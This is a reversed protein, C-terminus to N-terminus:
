TTPEPDRRSPDHGGLDEEEPSWESGSNRVVWTLGTERYLELAEAYGRNEAMLQRVHWGLWLLIGVVALVVETGAFPYLAGIDQPNSFSDLGTGM